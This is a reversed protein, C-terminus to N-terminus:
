STRWLNPVNMMSLIDTNRTHNDKVDYINIQLISELSRTHFVKLKQLSSESIPAWAEVGWLCLNIPIALYILRKAYLSVQKCRFYNRLVGMAKSAQSIRLDIDTTDDLNFSITSGLNKFQKSFQVYGDAVAFNSTDTSEYEHQFAPFYVCETKSQKENCGIHMELGFRVFHSMILNTGKKLDERNEFLMAGDDV